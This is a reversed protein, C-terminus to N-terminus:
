RGTVSPAPMPWPSIISFGGSPKRRAQLTQPHSSPDATAATAFDVVATLGLTVILLRLAHTWQRPFTFRSVYESGQRPLHLRTVMSATRAIILITRLYNAVVNGRGMHERTR